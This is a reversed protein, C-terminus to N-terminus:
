FDACPIQVIDSPMLPPHDEWSRKESYLGVGIITDVRGPVSAFPLLLREAVQLPRKSLREKTTGYHICPVGMIRQWRAMIPPHDDPGVIALLTDGKIRRGYAENVEEGALECVFDGRDADFAYIYINSLVSPVAMPDFSKRLPVIGTGRALRWSDLFAHLRQDMEVLKELGATDRAM